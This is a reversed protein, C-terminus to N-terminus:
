LRIGGRYYMNTLNVKAMRNATRKFIKRDVSKRRALRRAM